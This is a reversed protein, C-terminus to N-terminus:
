LLLLYMICNCLIRSATNVTDGFISYKPLRTGLVDAIVPGSNLGVRIQVYGKSLDDEDLPVENAARVCDIAFQALRKAHDDKQDKM